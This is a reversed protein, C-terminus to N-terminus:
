YMTQKEFYLLWDKFMEKVAVQKLRMSVSWNLKKMQHASVCGQQVNKVLM